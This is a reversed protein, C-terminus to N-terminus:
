QVDESALANLDVLEFDAEFVGPQDAIPLASDVIRVKALNRSSSLEQALEALVSDSVDADPHITASIRVRHSGNRRQMELTTIQVGIPFLISLERLLGNWSPRPGCVESIEQLHEIQEDRSEIEAAYDELEGDLNEIMGKLQSNVKSFRLDVPLAALSVAFILSVAVPISARRLRQDIRVVRRRQRERALLNIPHRNGLSHGLIASFGGVPPPNRDSIALRWHHIARQVADIPVVAQGLAESLFEALHPMNGVSGSLVIRVAGKHKLMSRLYNVSRKIETALRQGVPEVLPIAAASSIGYPLEVAVTETPCGLKQIVERAQEQKLNVVENGTIIPRMLAQVFTHGAIGIERCFRLAKGDFLNLVTTENGLDIHISASDQSGISTHYTLNALSEAAAGVSIPKLGVDAALKSAVEIAKRQAAVVLVTIQKKDEGPTGNMLRYDFVADEIEFHLCEELKLEIAMRLDAEPMKPFQFSQTSIVSGSLLCTAPLDNWGNEEVATRLKPIVSTLDDKMLQFGDALPIQTIGGFRVAEGATETAAMKIFGRGLDLVVASPKGKAASKM